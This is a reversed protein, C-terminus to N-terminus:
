KNENIPEIREMTEITRFIELAIRPVIANGFGAISHDRWKSFSIGDL